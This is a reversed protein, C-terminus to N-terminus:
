RVLLVSGRKVVRGRDPFSESKFTVIYPYLMPPYTTGHYTGDWKQEPNTTAFIVEGWRNYIRFEYDTYTLRLFRSCMM